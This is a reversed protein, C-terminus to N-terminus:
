AALCYYVSWCRHTGDNYLDHNNDRYCNYNKYNNKGSGAYQGVSYGGAGGQLDSTFFTNSPFNCTIASGEWVKWGGAGPSTVWCQNNTSPVVGQNAQADDPYYLMKSYPIQGLASNQYCNALHIGEGASVGLALMALSAFITFQM